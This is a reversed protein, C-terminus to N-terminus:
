EPMPKSRLALPMWCLNYPEFLDQDHGRELLHKGVGQLCREWGLWRWAGPKECAALKLGPKVGMGVPLFIDGIDELSSAVKHCQKM